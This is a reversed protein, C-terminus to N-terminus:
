LNYYFFHYLILILILVVVLISAVLGVLVERVRQCLRVGLVEMMSLRKRLSLSRVKTYTNTHTNTNDDTNTNIYKNGKMSAVVNERYRIGKNNSNSNGSNNFMIIPKSKM